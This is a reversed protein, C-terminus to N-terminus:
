KFHDPVAISISIKKDGERGRERGREREREGERLTERNPQSTTARSKFDHVFQNMGSKDEDRFPSFKLGPVGFRSFFM